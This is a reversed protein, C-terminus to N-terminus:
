VIAHRRYLEFAADWAEGPTPFEAPTAAIDEGDPKERIGAAWHQNEARHIRLYAEGQNPATAKFINEGAAELKGQRQKFWFPLIPQM